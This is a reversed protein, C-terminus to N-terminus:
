FPYLDRLFEVFHIMCNVRSLKVLQLTSLRVGYLGKNLCDILQVRDGTGFLAFEIAIWIRYSSGKNNGFM